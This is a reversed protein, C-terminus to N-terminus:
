KKNFGRLKIETIKKKTDIPFDGQMIWDYYNVDKKLIDEVKQGKYKGFNFVEERNENYAMRGALDVLNACSLAHLAAMDNKIPESEKGKADKIKVGEYKIIQAKLVEYTAMTDKEANHAGELDKYCYFKYAAGLTRPEMMHFIKQADVLKRNNIDFDVGARNFEEMLLPIDFKIHNFGALDCGVLFQAFTHGVEAFTPCGAVDKDYIGHIMSSEIPIPMGPNIRSSKTSVEQNPMVKVVAIEVIRDTSINTGTTELDFFALPKTLNLM